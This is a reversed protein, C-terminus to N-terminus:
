AADAALVRDIERLLLQMAVPKVVYAAFGATLAESIDQPMANASVAICPVARTEPQERLAALVQFGDLGPMLLDVLVLDPPARRVALLGRAGDTEMEFVVRPRWELISAMLLRNVEDDEIYLVRGVVDDRVRPADGGTAVGEGAGISDPSAPHSDAVPAGELHAGALPARALPARALHATAVPASAVPLEVHFTSGVGPQSEVSMTGGMREVLDRTIVLGIGLGPTTSRERGLRNFPQFLGNQQEVSMGLGSDRVGIHVREDVQELTVQVTGGPRNYKVANSLLNILVQRVRTRDGRMRIEPRLRSEIGIDADIGGLQTPLGQIAQQVAELPDIDELLLQVAGSEISTLDLLGDILKLLHMGARQIHGAHEHPTPPLPESAFRLMDSFGLIANLPTRLEHSMGSLFESKARNAQEATRQAAELELTRSVVRQELSRNLERIEANSRQVEQQFQNVARTVYDLADPRWLGHESRRLRLGDVDGPDSRLGRLYGAIHELHQGVMIQFLLLMVLTVILTKVANSILLVVLSSLLRDIVGDLSAVVHLQGLVLDRGRYRHTLPILQEKIRGANRAGSSWRVVGDVEIWLYEIDRLNRLGDLVLKVQTDDAIWVADSLAPLYVSRLSDVREYIGHVDVQYDRYLEMATIVATVMSSVLVLALMIRRAIGNNRLIARDLLLRGASRADIM